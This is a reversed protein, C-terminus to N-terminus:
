SQKSKKGLEKVTKRLKDGWSEVKKPRLMMSSVQYTSIDMQDM